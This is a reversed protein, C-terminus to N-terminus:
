LMKHKWAGRRFLILSAITMATEAAPIATFVGRHGWHLVIALTWALPIQFCWYCFFNIFTPTRTDGAGNFAQVLVMGWGYCINGVSIFRLCDAAIQQVAPDATVLAALQPAFILFVIAISGMWVSTYRGTQYVAAEARDPKKAGLSQGVLTAAANSLGWCPLIVFMFIRIAVTYGAISASGFTACLRVLGTWSATAILFQLIGNFSVTLLRTLVQWDIRIQRLHIRVRSYGGLLFFLQLAM